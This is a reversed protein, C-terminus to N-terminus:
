EGQTPDQISSLFQDIADKQEEPCSTAICIMTEDKKRLYIRQNVSDNVKWEYCHYIQTGIQQESEGIYIYQAATLQDFREILSQAYQAETLEPMESLSEYIIQVSCKEEQLLVICDYYLGAQELKIEQTDDNYTISSDDNTWEKMQESNLRTCGEASFRIQAWDNTFINEQWIGQQMNKDKCSSLLLLLSILCILARRKLVCRRKKVIQEIYYLICKKEIQLASNKM